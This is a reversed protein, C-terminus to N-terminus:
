DVRVEVRSNRERATKPLRVELVGQRLRAKLGRAAVGTPLQLSRTFPGYSREVRLHDAGRAQRGARREGEVILTRGDLRIRIDERAVGPIEATLVFGARDERLDVTPSWGALDGAGPTGGRRMASEFLRNLRDKLGALERLPDWSAAAAVPRPARGARASM